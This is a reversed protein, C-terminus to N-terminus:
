QTTNESHFPFVQNEISELFVPCLPEKGDRSQGLEVYLKEYRLKMRSDIFAGYDTYLRPGSGDYYEPFANVSYFHGNAAIWCNVSDPLNLLDEVDWDEPLSFGPILDWEGLRDDKLIPYIYETVVLEREEDTWGYSEALLPAPETIGMNAKFEEYSEFAFESCYPETSPDGLLAHYRPYVENENFKERGFYRTYGEAYAKATRYCHLNANNDKEFEEPVTKEIFENYEQQSCTPYCPFGDFYNVDDFRQSGHFLADQLPGTMIFSELVSLSEWERVPFQTPEPTATSTPVPTSTAVETPALTPEQDEVKTPTAVLAQTELMPVEKAEACATLLVLLMCIALFRLNLVSRASLEKKPIFIAWPKLGKKFM